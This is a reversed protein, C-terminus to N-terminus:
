REPLQALISSFAGDNYRYDPRARFFRDELVGFNRIDKRKFSRWAPLEDSAEGGVQYGVLLLRGRADLGYTHPEVIRPKGHYDFSVLHRKEIAEAINM